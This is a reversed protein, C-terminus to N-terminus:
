ARPVPLCVGFAAGGGPRAEIRVDGGQERTLRIAIHLPTVGGLRRPPRSDPDLIAQRRRASIHPGRDEVWLVAVDGDRQGRISPAGEPSRRASYALCQRVAEETESRSGTAILEPDVHVEIARGGDPELPVPAAVTAGPAATTAASAVEALSIDSRDPAMESALLTRVRRLGSELVETLTARDAPRIAERSLITSAGEVATFANVLDHRRTRAAALRLRSRVEATAADLELDFRRNSARRQGRRLAAVGAASAGALPALVLWVGATTTKRCRNVQASM